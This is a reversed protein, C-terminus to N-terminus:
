LLFDGSSASKSFNRKLFCKRSTYCIYIYTMYQIHILLKSFKSLSFFGHLWRRFCIFGWFFLATVEASAISTFKENRSGLQLVPHLPVNPNSHLSQWWKRTLSWSRESSGHHTILAPHHLFGSLPEALAPRSDWTCESGMLGRPGRLITSHQERHIRESSGWRRTHGKHESRGM